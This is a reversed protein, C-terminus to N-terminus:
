MRLERTLQRLQPMPAEMRTPLHDGAGGIDALRHCEIAGIVRHRQRRIFDPRRPKRREVLRLTIAEDADAFDAGPILLRAVGPHLPIRCISLLHHDCRPSEIAPRGASRGFPVYEDDKRGITFSRLLGTHVSFKLEPTTTTFDALSPTHNSAESESFKALSRRM